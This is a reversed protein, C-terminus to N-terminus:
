PYNRLTKRPLGRWLLSDFDIKKFKLIFNWFLLTSKFFFDINTNFLRMKKM